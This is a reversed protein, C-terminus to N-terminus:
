ESLTEVFALFTELTMSVIHPEHGGRTTFAIPHAGHFTKNPTAEVEAIAQKLKVEPRISKGKGCEIWFPTGVVDPAESGTASQGFSRAANPYFPKLANAIEREYEKGKMRNRKNRQSPTKAM